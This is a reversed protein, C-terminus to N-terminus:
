LFPKKGGCLAKKGFFPSKEGSFPKKGEKRGGERGERGGRGGGAPPGLGVERSAAALPFPFSAITKIPFSSM